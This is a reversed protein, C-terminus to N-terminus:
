KWHELFTLCSTFYVCNGYNEFDNFWCNWLLKTRRITNFSSQQRDVRVYVSITLSIIYILLMRFILNINTHSSAHIKCIKHPILLLELWPPLSSNKLLNRWSNHSPLSVITKSSMFSLFHFKLLVSPLSTLFM